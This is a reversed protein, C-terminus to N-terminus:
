RQLADEEGGVSQPVPQPHPHPVHMHPHVISEDAGAADAAHPWTCIRRAAEPCAKRKRKHTHPKSSRTCCKSCAHDAFANGEHPSRERAPVRWRWHWRHPQPAHRKPSTALVRRARLTDMQPHASNRMWTVQTRLLARSRRLVRRRQVRLLRRSVKKHARSLKKHNMQRWGITFPWVGRRASSDSRSLVQALLALTANTPPDALV